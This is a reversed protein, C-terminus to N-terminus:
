DKGAMIKEADDMGNRHLESIAMVMAGVLEGTLILTVWLRGELAPLRGSHALRRVEEGLGVFTDYVEKLKKGDGPKINKLLASLQIANRALKEFSDMITGKLYPPKEAMALHLFEFLIMACQKLNTFSFCRRQELVIEEVTMALGALLRPSAIGACFYLNGRRRSSGSDPNERREPPIFRAVKRLSSLSGKRVAGSVVASEPFVKM